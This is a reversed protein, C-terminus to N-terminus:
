EPDLESRIPDLNIYAQVIVKDGLDNAKQQAIGDAIEVAQEKTPINRKTYRDDDAPGHVKYGSGFPEDFNIEIIGGIDVEQPAQTKLDVPAEVPEKATFSSFDRVVESAFGCEGLGVQVEVLVLLAKIPVPQKHIQCLADRPSSFDGAPNFANQLQIATNKTTTNM